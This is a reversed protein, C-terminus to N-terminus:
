PGALAALRIPLLQTLQAHLAQYAQVGLGLPDTIEQEPHLLQVTPRQEASVSQGLELVFQLHEQTMVWVHSAWQLDEVQLQQSTGHWQLGSQALVRKADATTQAGHTARIGYSAFEMAKGNKQAWDAAMAHAM